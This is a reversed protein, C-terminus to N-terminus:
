LHRYKVSSYGKGSNLVLPKAWKIDAQLDEVLLYPVWIFRIGQPGHVTASVHRAESEGERAPASEFFQGIYLRSTIPVRCLRPSVAISLDFALRSSSFHRNGAALDSKSIPTM